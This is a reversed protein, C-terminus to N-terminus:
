KPELKTCGSPASMYTVYKAESGFNLNLSGILTGTLSGMLTGKFSGASPTTYSGTSATTFSWMMNIM